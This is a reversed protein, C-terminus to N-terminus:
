QGGTPRAPQPEITMTLATFQMEEWTQEGWHVDVSPDPNSKNASSNDYWAMTKLTTGKPLRLPEKFVYDTQWNFDYKPVALVVEKRGDPYTVEVKWERGRVHTHPLVSWLITDQNFTMQADVQTNPTGAPLTFNGNVLPMTMVEQKPAAKAWVFGIKSQDTVPKGGATYHVQFILTSGAPLRMATGEQFVRISQGPAFGGVFIGLGEKPMPRDNPIAQKAMATRHEPPTNMGPAMTFPPAPRPTGPAAAPPPTAPAQRRPPRAYVIIHHVVSRAEPRLEFAQIWKDETLNTPVEFHKYDITGNAPVPYAETMQFVADPQGISWGAPYTPAAPLDSRNGEPAGAAVWKLITDKEADSLRRDNVFTGHAPDAHWPPMTGNAVQSAIAKVWPRTETYTLMSFPGIDGPRHCSTCNKYFIPAVDKSFTPAAAPRNQAAALGPLLLVSALSLGVRVLYTQNM